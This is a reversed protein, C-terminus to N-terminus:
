KKRRILRYKCEIVVDLWNCTNKILIKMIKLTKIKKNKRTWTSSTSFGYNLGLFFITLIILGLIIIGVRDLHRYYKKNNIMRQRAAL